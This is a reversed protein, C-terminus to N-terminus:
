ELPQMDERVIQRIEAPTLESLGSTVGELLELRTKMDGYAKVGILVAVEEGHQTLVIPRHSENVQHIFHKSRHLFDSLSLTYKGTPSKHM